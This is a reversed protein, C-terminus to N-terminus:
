AIEREETRWIIANRSSRHGLNRSGIWTQISLHREAPSLLHPVGVKPSEWQPKENTIYVQSGDIRIRPMV